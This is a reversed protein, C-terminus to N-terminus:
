ERAIYQSRNIIRFENIIICLLRTRFLSLEACDPSIINNARNDRETYVLSHEYVGSVAVVQVCCTRTLYVIRM